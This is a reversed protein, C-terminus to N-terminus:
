AAARASTRRQAGRGLLRDVNGAMPLNRLEERSACGTHAAHDYAADRARAASILVVDGSLRLFELADGNWRAMGRQIYRQARKRTTWGYGGAPNLIRVQRKM